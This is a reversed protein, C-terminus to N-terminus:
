NFPIQFYWVKLLQRRWSGYLDKLSGGMQLLAQQRQMETEADILDALGEAQTLDLKANYFARKSFEGVFVFCEPILFLFKVEFNKQIFYKGPEAPRLGEVKGLAALVGAVVALGGHIQFECSDEGTFSKPGSFIVLFSVCIASSTKTVEYFVLEIWWELTERFYSLVTENLDIKHIIDDESILKHFCLLKKKRKSDQCIFNKCSNM